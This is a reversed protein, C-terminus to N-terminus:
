NIVTFATSLAAATYPIVSATTTLLLLRVLVLGSFSLLDQLRVRVTYSCQLLLATTSTSIALHLLQLVSLTLM